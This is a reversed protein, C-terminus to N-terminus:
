DGRGSASVDGPAPRGVSTLAGESAPGTGDLSSEGATTLRHLAAVLLCAGILALVFVGPYFVGPGIEAPDAEYPTCWNTTFCSTSGARVLVLWLWLGAQAVVIVAVAWRPLLRVVAIALVATVALFAAYPGHYTVAAAAPPGFMVALWAVLSLMSGVLLTAAARGLRRWWWLLPVALLLVGPTLIPAGFSRRAVASVDGSSMALRVGEVVEGGGFIWLNELRLQLAGGLGISRYRDIVVQLLPGEVDMGDIGALHWQAILSPPSESTLRFVLWGGIFIVPLALVSPWRRPGPLPIRHRVIAVVVVPLGLLGIPHAVLSVAGLTLAVAWALVDLSSSSSRRGNDIDGDVENAGTGTGARSRADGGRGQELFIALAILLLGSPFLKPWVYVTGLAVFSTLTVLLGAAVLRLHRVGAAWLVLLSGVVALAQLLSGGIQSAMQRARDDDGSLAVVPLTYSAQVPPREALPWGGLAHENLDAGDLVRSVWEHPFQNDSRSYISQASALAIPLGGRAFLGGSALLVTALVVLLLSALPVGEGSGWPLWAAAVAAAAVYGAIAAVVGAPALAVWLWFVLWWLTASGAVVVGASLSLRTPLAPLRRALVALAGIGPVSMVVLAAVSRVVFLLAEDFGSGSGGLGSVGTLVVPAALASAGFLLQWFFRRV